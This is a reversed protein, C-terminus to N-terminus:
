FLVFKLFFSNEESEVKSLEEKSEKQPVQKNQRDGFMQLLAM